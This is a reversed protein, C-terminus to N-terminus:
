DIKNTQQKLKKYQYFKFSIGKFERMAVRICYAAACQRQNEENGVICNFYVHNLLKSITNKSQSLSLNFNFKVYFM